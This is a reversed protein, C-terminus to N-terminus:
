VRQLERRTASRRRPRREPLPEPELSPPPWVCAVKVVKFLVFTTVRIIGPITALKEVVFRHIEDTSPAHVQISLDHSGTTIAVYGVEPFEAVREAIEHLRRTEVQIVIDAAAPYGIKKYDLWVTFNIVGAHRLKEIRLRVTRESIYLQEAIEHRSMSADQRLLRIIQRDIDDVTEM